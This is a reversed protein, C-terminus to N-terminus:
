FYTYEPMWCNWHRRCSSRSHRTTRSTGASVIEIIAVVSDDSVHRVTVHSKKRRYWDEETQAADRVKPRPLVGTSPGSTPDGAIADDSGRSQLALVDLERKASWQEAMAYYDSPLAGGNLIRKIQSIWEHHFDHFMGAKVRSWDHVPM